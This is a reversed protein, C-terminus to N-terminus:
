EKPTLLALAETIKDQASSIIHDMETAMSQGDETSDKRYSERLNCHDEIGKAHELADRAAQIAVAPDEIGALANVCAVIRHADADERDYPHACGGELAGISLLPFDPNGTTIIPRSPGDYGVEWPGTSHKPKNM